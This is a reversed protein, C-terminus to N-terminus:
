FSTNTKLKNLKGYYVMDDEVVAFKTYQFGGNDEDVQKFVWLLDEWSPIPQALGPRAPTSM